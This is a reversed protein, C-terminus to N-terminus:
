EEPDQMFWPKYVQTGKKCHAKYGEPLKGRNNCGNDHLTHECNDCLPAGCVLGGMTEDCSCTAPEGCSSCVLGTHKECFDSGEIAEEKCRGSWAESFKCQAM